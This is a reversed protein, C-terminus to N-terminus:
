RVKTIEMVADLLGRQSDRVKLDTMAQKRAPAGAEDRSPSVISSMDDTSISISRLRRGRRPWTALRHADVTDDGNILTVSTDGSKQAGDKSKPVHAEGDTADLAANPADMDWRTCFSVPTRPPFHAEVTTM